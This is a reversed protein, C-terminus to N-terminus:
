EGRGAECRLCAPSLWGHWQIEQVQWSIQNRWDCLPSLTGGAAVADHFWTCDCNSVVDLRVGSALLLYGGVGSFKKYRSLFKIEGTAFCSVVNTFSRAIM